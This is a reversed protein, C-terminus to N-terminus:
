NERGERAENESPDHVLIFAAMGVLGLVLVAILAYRVGQHEVIMLLAALLGFFLTTGVLQLLSYRMFCVATTGLRVLLSVVILTIFTAGAFMVPIDFLPNSLLIALLATCVLGVGSGRFVFRSWRAVRHATPHKEWQDKM